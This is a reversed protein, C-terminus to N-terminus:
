EPNATQSIGFSKDISIRSSSLLTDFDKPVYSFMAAGGRM